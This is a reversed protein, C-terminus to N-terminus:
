KGKNDGDIVVREGRAPFDDYGNAKFWEVPDISKASSNSADEYVGFHLHSGSSEGASGMDAIHDGAHVTDGVKVHLGDAYMHGYTTVMGDEHEIRIWNGYGTAPGADIVKGDAAAYIPSGAPDSIDIGWHDRGQDEVHGYPTFFVGEAPLAVGYENAGISKGSGGSSAGCHVNLGGKKGSKGSRGSSEGEHGPNNRTQGPKLVSAHVHDYHNETISGRDDMVYAPKPNSTNEPEQYLRQEWITYDLNFEDAHAWIWDNVEDGLQGKKEYDGQETMMFDIARGEVHDDAAGGVARWGGMVEIEPFEDNVAKALRDADKLLKEKSPMRDYASGDGNAASSSTGGRNGKKSGNNNTGCQRAAYERADRLDMIVDGNPLRCPSAFLNSIEGKSDKPSLAGSLGAAITDLANAVTMAGAGPLAKKLKEADGKFNKKNFVKNAQTASPEREPHYAGPREYGLQFGKSAAVPDDTTVLADKDLLVKETKGTKPNPIATYARTFPAEVGYNNPANKMYMTIANTQFESVWVFESESDLTWGGKVFQPSAIYKEYPTFQYAGGGPGGFDPATAHDSPFHGGGESIKPDFTGGSEQEVNALVGAAFAGSTGITGTFFDYIKKAREYEETGERLWAKAEGSPAGSSDSSSSSGGDAGGGSMLNEIFAQEESTCLRIGAEDQLPDVAFAPVQPTGYVALSTTVALAAFIRKSRTLNHIKM